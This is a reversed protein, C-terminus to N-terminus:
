SRWLSGPRTLGQLHHSRVETQPVPRCKAKAPSPIPSSYHCNRFQGLSSSTCTFTTIASDTHFHRQSCFTSTPLPPQLCARDICSFQLLHLLASALPIFNQLVNRIGTTILVKWHLGNRQSVHFFPRSKVRLTPAYGGRLNVADIRSDHQTLCSRSNESQNPSPAEVPPSTPPPSGARRLNAKKGNVECRPVDIKRRIVECCCFKELAPVEVLTFANQYPSERLVCNRLPCDHRSGCSCLSM